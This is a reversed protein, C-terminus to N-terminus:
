LALFPGGDRLIRMICVDLSKEENAALPNFLDMQENLM